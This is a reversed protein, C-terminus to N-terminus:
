AGVARLFRPVTVGPDYAFLLSSIAAAGSAGVAQALRAQPANMGGLALVPIDVADVCRRLADLGAPAADPHSRTRFVPSFTVYDAGARQAVLAQTASHASFGVLPLDTVEPLAAFTRSASLWRDVMAPNAKAYDAAWAQTQQITPESAFEALVAEVTDYTKATAEPVVLEVSTGSRLANLSADTIGPIVRLAEVSGVPGRTLRLEVIAEATGTDVGDIAALETASAKNLSVRDAASAAGALTLMLAMLVPRM